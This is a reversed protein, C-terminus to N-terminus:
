NRLDLPGLAQRGLLELRDVHAAGTALEHRERREGRELRGRLRALELAELLEIGHAELAHDRGAHREVLREAVELRLGPARQRRAVRDIVRALRPLEAGLTAAEETHEQEGADEDEEHERGLELAEAVREDDEGARRGEGERARGQEHEQAGGREVDVALEPEDREG